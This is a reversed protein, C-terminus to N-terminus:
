VSFLLSLTSPSVDNAISVLAPVKDAFRIFGLEASERSQYRYLSCAKTTTENYSRQLVIEYNGDVTAPAYLILCEERKYTARSLYNDISVEIVRNAPQAPFINYALQRLWAMKVSLIILVVFFIVFNSLSQYFLATGFASHLCYFCLARFNVNQFPGM